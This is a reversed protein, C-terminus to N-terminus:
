FIPALSKSVSALQAQHLRQAKLIQARILALTNMAHAQYRCGRERSGLGADRLPIFTEFGYCCISPSPRVRHVLGANMRHGQPTLQLVDRDLAVTGLGHCAM